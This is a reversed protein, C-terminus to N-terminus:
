AYLDVDRGKNSATVTQAIIDAMKKEADASQKMMGIAARQQVLAMKSATGGDLEDIM